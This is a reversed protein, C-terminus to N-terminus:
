AGQCRGNQDLPLRVALVGRDIFGAVVQAPRDAVALGLAGGNIVQDLPHVLAAQDFIM